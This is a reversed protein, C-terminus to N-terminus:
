DTFLERRIPLDGNARAIRYLASMCAVWILTSVIAVIIITV